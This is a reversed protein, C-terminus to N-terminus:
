IANEESNKRTNDEILKFSNMMDEKDDDNDSRDLAIYYEITLQAPFNHAHHEGDKTRIDLPSYSEIIWNYKELIVSIEEYTM